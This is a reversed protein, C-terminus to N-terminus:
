DRPKLTLFEVGEVQCSALDFRSLAAQGLLLQCGACVLVQVDRIEFPGVKMSEVTVGRAQVGRGDAMRLPLSTVALSYHAKSAMLFRESVTTFTAGTDVTFDSVPSKGLTVPVM